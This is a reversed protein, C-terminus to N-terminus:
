LQKYQPRTSLYRPLTFTTKPFGRTEEELVKILEEVSMKKEEGTKRVRVSLVGSSVEKPGIVAIYPIWSKEAERVRKALTLEFRDDIDVRFMKEELADAVKNAYELENKSIPILRVQVPSLWTPLQPKEGKAEKQAETDLVAYIFREISGILATHIIAPYRERNEEDFYKIGFRKANGIDIQFTAIERPRKLIDIIHYEVNIVWYYKGEPVFHILIPQGEMEALKRFYEKNESYFSRTTNYLSVYRRGIKKIEELIKKHVKFSVEMAEKVDRCLIHLDPMYFRRLRFCLLTEGPQELRYSDAVEFMGFPLHRYSIVWDKLMAFQQHCAAFRMVYKKGDVELVYLRDGFLEAHKKVPPVELSFMNTGMVRFLPIGLERAVKWAYQMVLDVVISAEPGYRMHGVDSYPEWEFGLRRCYEIVKSEEGGPLPKKLAEKEVLARFEPDKDGFKEVWERPSMETGDPLLVLFNREESVAERSITRSLEALPHGFCKIEFAKYYGFPARIVEGDFLEKVKEYLAVIAKKAAEPSALDSSLHAFPYIVICKAGVRRAVDIIESAARDVVGEINEEDGREVTVFAVLANSAEGSRLEDTLEEASDIAKKKVEFRFRESHILLIKM